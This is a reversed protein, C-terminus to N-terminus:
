LFHLERVTYIHTCKCRELKVNFCVYVVRIITNVPLYQGSKSASATSRGQWINPANVQFTSSSGAATTNSTDKRKKRSSPTPTRTSPPATVQAPIESPFSQNQVRQYLPIPHWPFTKSQWWVWNQVLSRSSCIPPSASANWYRLYGVTAWAIKHKHTM